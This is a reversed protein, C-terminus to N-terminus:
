PVKREAAVADGPTQDGGDPADVSPVTREAARRARARGPAGMVYLVISLPLLGYLIFTFIAGLVTGQSSFAEALAMMLVVYLWAMAVVILVTEQCSAEKPASRSCLAHVPGLEVYFPALIRAHRVHRPHAAHHRKACNGIRRMGAAAAAHGFM